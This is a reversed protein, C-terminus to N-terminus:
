VFEDGRVALDTADVAQYVGGDPLDFTIRVGELAVAVTQADSLSGPQQPMVAAQAMPPVEMGGPNKRGKIRGTRPSMRESFIRVRAVMSGPHMDPFVTIGNFRNRTCGDTRDPAVGCRM